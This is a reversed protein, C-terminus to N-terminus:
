KLKTVLFDALLEGVVRHGGEGWHGYRGGDLMQEALIGRRVVEADLDLYDLEYSLKGFEEEIQSYLQVCNPRRLERGCKVVPNSSAIHDSGFKMVVLKAGNKLCLSKMQRILSVTLTIAFQNSEKNTKSSLSILGVRDFLMLANDNSWLAFLVLQMLESVRFLSSLEIKGYVPHPLPAPVNELKLEDNEIVFYPKELGYQRSNSNNLPDNGVFLALVVIDPGYRLGERLLFLYQQDTGWGSVAANIIDVQLNAARLQKEAVRSFIDDNAVNFGWAFSDGLVLIRKRGEPKEVPYDPSRFGHSNTSGPRGLTVFESNPISKWGLIEDYLFEEGTHRHTPIYLVLRGVTPFFSHTVRILVEAGLLTIIISVLISLALFIRRRNM